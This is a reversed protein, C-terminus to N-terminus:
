TLLNGLVFHFFLSCMFSLRTMRSLRNNLVTITIFIIGRLLKLFASTVFISMVDEFIVKDFLQLPSELEHCAM